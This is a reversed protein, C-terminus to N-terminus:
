IMLMEVGGLADDRACGRASARSRARVFGLVVVACRDIRRVQAVTEEFASLSAGGPKV